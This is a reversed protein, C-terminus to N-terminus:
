LWSGWSRSLIAWWISRIPNAVVVCCFRRMTRPVIRLVARPTRMTGLVIRLVARTTRMTGLVIRLVVGLNRMTRPVIRLMAGINRMTGPVIRLIQSMVVHDSPPDMIQPFSSCFAVCAVSLRGIGYVPNHVHHAVTMIFM